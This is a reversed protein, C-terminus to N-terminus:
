RSRRSCRRPAMARGTCRRGARHRRRRRRLHLAERTDARRTRAHRRERQVDVWTDAAPTTSADIAAASAQLTWGRPSDAAYCCPAERNRVSYAQLQVSTDFGFHIWEDNACPQAHSPPEASHWEMSLDTDYAAQCRPADGYYSSESCGTPVLRGGWDVPAVPPSPPSSSPPSQSLSHLSVETLVVYCRDNGNTTQGGM